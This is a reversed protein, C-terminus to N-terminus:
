CRGHGFSSMHITGIVHHTTFVRYWDHTTIEGSSRPRHQSAKYVRLEARFLHRYPGLIHQLIAASHLSKGLPSQHIMFHHKPILLGVHTDQHPEQIRQHNRAESFNGVEMFQSSIDEGFLLQFDQLVKSWFDQNSFDMMKM